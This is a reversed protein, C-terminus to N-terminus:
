ADHLAIRVEVNEAAARAVVDLNPEKAADLRVHLFRADGPNHRLYVAM